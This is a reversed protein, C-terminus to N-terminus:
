NPMTKGSSYQLGWMCARRPNVVCAHMIECYVQNSSKSIATIFIYFQSVSHSTGLPFHSPLSPTTFAICYVVPCSYFVSMRVLFSVASLSSFFQITYSSFSLICTQKTIAHLQKNSENLLLKSNIRFGSTLCACTSIM